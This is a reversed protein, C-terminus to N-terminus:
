ERKNLVSRFIQAAEDPTNAVHCEPAKVGNEKLLGMSIYEHVNLNRVAISTIAPRLLRRASM